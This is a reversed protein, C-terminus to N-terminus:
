VVLGKSKLAAYLVAFLQQADSNQLVVLSNKNLETNNFAIAMHSDSVGIVMDGNSFSHGETHEAAYFVAGGHCTLTIQFGEDTWDNEFPDGYGVQFVDTRDRTSEVEYAQGRFVRIGNKAAPLSAIHAITKECTKPNLKTLKNMNNKARSVPPAGCKQCDSM